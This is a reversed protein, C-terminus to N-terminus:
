KCIQDYILNDLKTFIDLAKCLYYEYLSYLSLTKSNCLIPTKQKNWYERM